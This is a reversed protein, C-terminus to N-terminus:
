KMLVVIIVVFCHPLIYKTLSSSVALALFRKLKREFCCFTYFFFFFRLHVSISCRGLLSVSGVVHLVSHRVLAFLFIVTLYTFRRLDETHILSSTLHLPFPAPAPYAYWFSIKLYCCCCLLFIKAYDLRIVVKKRVDPIRRLICSPSFIEFKNKINAEGM